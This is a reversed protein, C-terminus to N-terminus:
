RFVVTKNGNAGAGPRGPPIQPGPGAGDKRHGQRLAGHRGAFRSHDIRIVDQEIIPGADLESTVYHCTAGILKVGREYAQHYPSPAPSAPCSPITSISSGGRLADCLEPSPNAHLPRAGHLRRARGRLHPRDRRLGPGQQGRGGARPPLSATGSSSAACPTPQLRRLPNRHRTGKAQWRALLDYLCHEQKSVMIVVRKKVASDTIRWDMGLPEAVASRFASASNPSSSPCGETKIEIRMFYAAPSPTPTSARSSFGAGAAPSSAPFRAIIGVQDPCSATLTYFRDRHM